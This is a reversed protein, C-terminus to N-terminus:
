RDRRYHPPPCNSQFLSATSTRRVAMTCSHTPPLTRISLPSFLVGGEASSNKTRLRQHLGVTPNSGVHAKAPANCTRETRGSRYTPTGSREARIPASGERMRYSHWEVM